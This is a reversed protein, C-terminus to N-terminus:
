TTLLQQITQRRQNWKDRQANHGAAVLGSQVCQAYVSCAVRNATSYRDIGVLSIKPQEPNLEQGDIVANGEEPPINSMGTNIIYDAFERSGQPIEKRVGLGKLVLNTIDRESLRTGDLRAPQNEALWKITANPLPPYGGDVARILEDAEDLPIVPLSVEKGKPGVQIVGGKTSIQLFMTNWDAKEKLKDKIQGLSAGTGEDHDWALFKTQLKEGRRRFIGYGRVTNGDPGTRGASDLDM